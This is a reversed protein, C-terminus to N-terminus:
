RLPLRFTFRLEMGEIRADPRVTIEAQRVTKGEADRSEVPAVAVAQEPSAGALPGLFELLNRRLFEVAEAPGAPMEEMLLACFQALRAATLQYSLTGSVTLRGPADRHANVALPIMVTDGGTRGSVATFGGRALEQAALDPLEVETPLPVLQNAAKPYPRAPMGSFGGARPGSLDLAHGHASASRAVAAGVLWPGRGWLLDDAKGEVPPRLLWRNVTLVVWRAEDTKQFRQWGAHAPDALRQPLDTLKGLLTWERLGFFAPSAAAVVPAQAVRAMEGMEQLRALDGAQHSFDFDLLVLGLPPNRLERVEPEFVAERFRAPLDKAACSLADVRISEGAHKMLFALGLIAGEARGPPVGLASRIEAPGGAPVRLLGAGEDLGFDSVVVFRWGMPKM